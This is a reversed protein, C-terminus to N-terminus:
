CCLKFWRNFFTGSPHVEIPCLEDLMANVFRRWTGCNRPLPPLKLALLKKRTYVDDEDDVWLEMAEKRQELTFRGKGLHDKVFTSKYAEMAPAVILTSPDDFGDPNCYSCYKM